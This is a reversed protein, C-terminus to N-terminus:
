GNQNNRETTPKGQVRQRAARVIARFEPDESNHRSPDLESAMVMSEQAVELVEADTEGDRGLVESVEMAYRKMAGM